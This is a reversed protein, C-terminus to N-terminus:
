IIKFWFKYDDSYNYYMKRIREIRYEKDGFWYTCFNVNPFGYDHQYYYNSLEISKKKIMYPDSMVTEYLNRDFLVMMCYVNFFNKSFIDSSGDMKKYYITKDTSDVILLKNIFSRYYVDLYDYINRIKNDFDNLDDYRVVECLSLNKPITLYDGYNNKILDVYELKSMKDNVFLPFILWRLNWLLKNIISEYEYFEDITYNKRIQKVLYKRYETVYIYPKKFINILKWVKDINKIENSDLPYKLLNNNYINDIM